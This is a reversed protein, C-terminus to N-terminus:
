GPTSANVVIASLFSIFCVRINRNTITEKIEPQENSTSTTCGPPEGGGTVTAAPFTVVGAAVM